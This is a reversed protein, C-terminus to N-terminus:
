FWEWNWIRKKNRKKKICFEITDIHEKQCIMKRM